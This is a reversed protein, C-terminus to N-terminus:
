HNSKYLKILYENLDKCKGYYMSYDVVHGHQRYIESLVQKGTEDNDLYAYILHHRNLFEMAKEIHIASNLVVTNVQPQLLQKLTLYSLYDIFGEFVMCEDTGPTFTTLDKPSVSGKFHKNRIEYGGADNKFGIAYYDKKGVSYRVEVCQNQATETNIGRRSLYSILAHNCLPLVAHLVTKSSKDLPKPPAIFTPMVKGKLINMAQHFSCQNLKMVLDIMTGGV